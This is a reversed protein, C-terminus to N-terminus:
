GFRLARMPFSVMHGEILMHEDEEGIIVISCTPSAYISMHAVFAHLAKMVQVMSLPGAHLLDNVVKLGMLASLIKSVDDDVAFWGGSSKAPKFKNATEFILVTSTLQQSADEPHRYPGTLVIPVRLDFMERKWKECYQQYCRNGEQELYGVIEDFVRPRPSALLFDHFNSLIEYAPQWLGAHSAFVCPAVHSLKPAPLPAKNGQAYEKHALDDALLVAFEVNRAIIFMSM